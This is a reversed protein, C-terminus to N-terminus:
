VFNLTIGMQEFQPHLTEVPINNANIVMWKRFLLNFVRGHIDRDYPVYEVGKVKGNDALRKATIMSKNLYISHEPTVYTDRNPYNRRLSDKKIKVLQSGGYFSKTFAQLGIGNITTFNNIKSIPMKGQDTQILTSGVLCINSVTNSNDVTGGEGVSGIFFVQGDIVLEDEPVLYQNENTHFVFKENHKTIDYHICNTKKSMALGVSNDMTLVYKEDCTDLRRYTVTRNPLKISVHEGKELVAYFGEDTNLTSKDLTQGADVVVVNSKEFSPPLDLEVRTFKLM